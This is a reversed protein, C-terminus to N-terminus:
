PELTPLAAPDLTPVIYEWPTASAIPLVQTQLNVLMEFGSQDTIAGVIVVGGSNADFVYYIGIPPVQSAPEVGPVGIVDGMTLNDGLIGVVWVPVHPAFDSGSTGTIQNVTDLTVLRVITASTNHGEPFVELAREVAESEDLIPEIALAPISHETPAPTATEAQQQQVSQSAVSTMRWVPSRAVFYGVGVGVGALAMLLVGAHRSMM